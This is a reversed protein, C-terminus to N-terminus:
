NYLPIITYFKQLACRAAKLKELCIRPKQVKKTTVSFANFSSRKLKSLFLQM